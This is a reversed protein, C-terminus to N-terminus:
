NGRKTPWTFWGKFVEPRTILCLPNIFYLINYYFMVVGFSENEVLPHDGMLGFVVSFWYCLTLYWELVCLQSWFMSFMSNVIGHNEFDFEEFDCMGYKKHKECQGCINLWRVRWILKTKSCGQAIFWSGSDTSWISVISQWRELM